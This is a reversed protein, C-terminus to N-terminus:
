KKKELLLRCVIDFRSQLESTYEESRQLLVSSSRGASASRTHLASQLRPGRAGAAARRPPSSPEFSGAAPRWELPIRNRTRFLTTYTFHYTTTQTLRVSLMYSIIYNIS